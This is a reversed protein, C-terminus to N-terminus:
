RSATQSKFRYYQKLVMQVYKQTNVYPPIGGYKAVASGGAHYGAITMVLDGNFRNALIRLLRTGGLINIRPEFVMEKPVRM